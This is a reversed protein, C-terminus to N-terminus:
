TGAATKGVLSVIIILLLVLADTFTFTRNPWVVIREYKMIGKLRFFFSENKEQDTAETSYHVNLFYYIFFVLALEDLYRLVDM